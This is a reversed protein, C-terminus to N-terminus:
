SRVFKEKLWWDSTLKDIRDLSWWWIDVSPSRPPAWYRLMSTTSFSDKRLIVHSDVGGLWPTSCFVPHAKRRTWTSSAPTDSGAPYPSTTATHWCSNDIRQLHRSCYFVNAVNLYVQKSWIDVQLKKQLGDLYEPVVLGRHQKFSVTSSSSSLKNQM